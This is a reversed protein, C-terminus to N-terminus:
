HGQGFKRGLRRFTRQSLKYKYLPLVTLKYDIIRQKYLLIYSTKTHLHRYTAPLSLFTVFKELKNWMLEGKRERKGWITQMIKIEREAGSYISRTDCVRSYGYLDRETVRSAHM